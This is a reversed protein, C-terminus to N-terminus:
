PISLAVKVTNLYESVGVPMVHEFPYIESIHGREATLYLFRKTSLSRLIFIIIVIKTCAHKYDSTTLLYRHHDLFM